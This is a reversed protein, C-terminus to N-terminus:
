RAKHVRTILYRIDYIEIDSNFAESYITAGNAEWTDLTYVNFSSLYNHEVGSGKTLTFDRPYLVGVSGGIDLKVQMRVNSAGTTPRCRFEITINLADGNKGTIVSGDYFTTIDSPKQSEILSGKNNPLAVAAGTSLTFPSVDTYTTDNYVGWGTFKEVEEFNDNIKQGGERLTDGTGDNIDTGINIEDLAM